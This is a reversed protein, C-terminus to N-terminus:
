AVAPSWKTGIAIPREGEEDISRVTLVPCPARRLTREAVSGLLMHVLGTRGHTGMVILDAGLEGAMECIAAVPSGVALHSQCETGLGREIAALSAEAARRSELMLEAGQVAAAAAGPVAPPFVVIPEVLAHLLHLDAGTVKALERAHELAERAHKSFDHAVLITRFPVM